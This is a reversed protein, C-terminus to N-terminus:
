RDAPFGALPTHVAGLPRRPRGRQPLGEVRSEYLGAQRPPPCAGRQPLGESVLKSHGAHGASGLGREGDAGGTGARAALGLGFPSPARGGRRRSSSKASGSSRARQSAVMVANMARWTSAAPARPTTTPAEPPRSEATTAASQTLARPFRLTRQTRRGDGSESGLSSAWARRDQRLRPISGTRRGIPGRRSPNRADSAPLGPRRTSALALARPRM